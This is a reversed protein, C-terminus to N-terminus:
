QKNRNKVILLLLLLIIFLGLFVWFLVKVRRQQYDIEQKRKEMDKFSVMKEQSSLSDDTKINTEMLDVEYKSSVMLNYHAFVQLLCGIFCAIALWKIIKM